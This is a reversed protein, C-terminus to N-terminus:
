LHQLEPLVLSWLSLLSTLQYPPFWHPYFMKPPLHNTPDPLRSSILIKTQMTKNDITWYVILFSNTIIYHARCTQHTQYCQISYINHKTKWGCTSRPPCYTPPPNVKYEADCTEHSQKENDDNSDYTLLWSSLVVRWVSCRIQTTRIIKKANRM